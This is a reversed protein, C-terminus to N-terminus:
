AAAESLPAAVARQEALAAVIERVMVDRTVRFEAQGAIWKMAGLCKEWWGLSRCRDVLAEAKARLADLDARDVPVAESPPLGYIVGFRAMAIQMADLAETPSLDFFSAEVDLRNPTETRLVAVEIHGSVRGTRIAECFLGHALEHSTRRVLTRGYTFAPRIM